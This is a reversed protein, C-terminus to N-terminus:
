RGFALPPSAQGPGEGASGGGGSAMRSRRAGPASPRPPKCSPDPRRPLALVLSPPRASPTRAADRTHPAPPAHRRLRRRPPLGLHPRLRQQAQQRPLASKRGQRQADPCHRAGGGRGAPRERGQRRGSLDPEGGHLVGERGGHLRGAAAAARRPEGACAAVLRLSYPPIPSPRRGRQRQWRLPWVGCWARPWCGEWMWAHAATRAAACATLAPAVRCLSDRSREPCPRRRTHPTCDPALPPPPASAAFRPSPAASAGITAPSACPWERTRTMAL